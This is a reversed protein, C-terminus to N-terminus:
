KTGCHLGIVNHLKIQTVDGGTAAKMYVVFSKQLEYFLKNQM